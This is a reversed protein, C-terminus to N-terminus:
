MNNTKAPAKQWKNVINYATKVIERPIGKYLGGSSGFIYGPFSSWDKLLENVENEVQEVTKMKAIDEYEYNGWFVWNGLIDLSFNDKSIGASPQLCQMGWFGTEKISSIIDLINGDSHFIFPVTNYDLRKLLRALLPFYHACLFTPSVLLGHKGALDDAIIIGECGADLAQVALKSGNNIFNGMIKEAEEPKKVILYSMEKWGLEEAMLMFPGQMFGFIFYGQQQWYSWRSKSKSENIKLTVLDTNLCALVSELNGGTFQKIFEDTILIEGAPPRDVKEKNLAAWVRQHKDM